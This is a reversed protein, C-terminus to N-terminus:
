TEKIKKENEKLLTGVRNNLFKGMYKYIFRSIDINDTTSADQYIKDLLSNIEEPPPTGGMNTFAKSFTNSNFVNKFASFVMKKIVSNEPCDKDDDRFLNGYIKYCKKNDSKGLTFNGQEMDKYNSDIMLLYGHNPIYYEVGNILYKWYRTINGHTSIDKIYVNDMISFKTFQVCHIQMVYLAAMLQFLISQWVESKHYGTNIMRKVNGESEYTRSAWSYLNYNPSETLAVIGKGSTSKGNIKYTIFPPTKLDPNQKMLDRVQLAEIANGGIQKNNFNVDIPKLNNNSPNITNLTNIVNEEMNVIKKNEEYEKIYKDQKEIKNGKINAIKDFDIDCKECVYYGYMTVFNPSVKQKIIHERIYEYYRIERWSDFNHYSFENNNKVNYEDMTLNYIRINMGVSNKACQVSNSSQHLRIPYCSRYIIMNNPLGKYPNMSVQNPNYPNLEIFKLYSLLSNRGSGQIDIDEGDGEKIFVSRVFNYINIREGITNSTNSFQNIPLVDEYIASVKSHDATPGSVNITYNKVLPMDPPAGYHIPQHGNPGGPVSSYQPPYFPSKSYFPM